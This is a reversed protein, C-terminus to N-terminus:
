MYGKLALNQAVSSSIRCVSFPHALHPQKTGATKALGKERQEVRGQNQQLTGAQSEPLLRLLSMHLHGIM